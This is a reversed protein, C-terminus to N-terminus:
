QDILTLWKNIVLRISAEKNTLDTMDAIKILRRGDTYNGELIGTTDTVKAGTPLVMLVSGRHLNLVVIDRKYEKADFAQMNGTYFFSPSNWKIQESILPDISLIIQRLKNIIRRLPEDYKQIHEDVAQPSHVDKVKM